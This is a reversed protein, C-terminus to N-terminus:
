RMRKWDAAPIVPSVIDGTISGKGALFNFTENEGATVPVLKAVPNDRNIILAPESKLKMEEMIILRGRNSRRISNAPHPAAM